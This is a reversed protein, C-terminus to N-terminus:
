VWGNALKLLDKADQESAANMVIFVGEISIEELLPARVEPIAEVPQSRPSMVALTMRDLVEGEWWAALRLRAREWDEKYKM